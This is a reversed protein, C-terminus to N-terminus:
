LKNLIKAKQENFEEETLIGQDRLKALHELQSLMDVAPQKPEFSVDSKSSIKLRVFEAFDKILTNAVNQIDAKNGSAHIKITGMLMGTEYQISNIRDYPFDEVKSGWLMGKDVFVLRKDTAVLVGFGGKYSGAVINEIVEDSHLIEPLERIEKENSILPNIRAIQSRIEKLRKSESPSLSLMAIIEEAEAKQEKSILITAIGGFGTNPSSVQLQHTNLIDIVKVQTITNRPIEYTKTIKSSDWKGTLGIKQKYKNIRVLDEMVFIKGDKGELTLLVSSNGSNKNFELLKESSVDSSEIAKSVDETKKKGFGLM